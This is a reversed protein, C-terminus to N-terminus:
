GTFFDTPLEYKDQIQEEILNIEEQAQEFIETGSFEVGGPLQLGSFKSLNQGWQRKFLATVYKKLLINNYIEPFQNPTDPDYISAYCELIITSGVELDASWDSDIYLRNTLRNFRVNKDPELMQQLLRLHQQVMAWHGLDISQLGYFDSLALQYRVDFMNSAHSAFGIPYMKLISMIQNNTVDIFKNNYDDETVTHTLYIREIGDFHYEVLMQLADDMLDELQSEDVNIEVVPKGLKRLAYEKLDTRSDIAM